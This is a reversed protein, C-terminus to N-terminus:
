TSPDMKSCPYAQPRNQRIQVYIAGSGGHGPSAESFGVVFQRFEDTAFWHPVAARLVGSEQRDNFPIEDPNSIRGGKGTIVIVYRAGQQQARALFRRLARHAEAQRMGHLDLTGGLASRGRAIKSRTKRDLGLLQTRKAAPKAIRKKPAPATELNEKPPKVQKASDPTVIVERTKDLARISGTVHKWLRTEDDSLTRASHSKLKAM